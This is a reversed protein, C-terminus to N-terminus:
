SGACLMAVRAADVARAQLHQDVQVDLAALRSQSIHRTIHYAVELRDLAKLLQHPLAHWKGAQRLGEFTRGSADSFMRLVDSHAEAMIALPTMAPDCSSSICGLHTRVSCHTSKM